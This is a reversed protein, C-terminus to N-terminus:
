DLDTAHSHNSQCHRLENFDIRGNGNGQNDDISIVDAFVYSSNDDIGVIDYVQYLANPGTIILQITDNIDLPENFQIEANGDNDSLGFGLLEDNYFISCRFNSQPMGDKLINVNSSTTGAILAPEFDVEPIFPEDLWPCVAVDGLINICYFNWRLAGNDGWGQNVYPATMIKMEVFATGIYPLRDNYYALTDVM